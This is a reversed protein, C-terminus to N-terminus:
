NLIGSRVRVQNVLLPLEQPIMYDLKEDYIQASGYIIDELSKVYKGMKEEIKNRIIRRDRKPICATRDWKNVLVIKPTNLSASHIRHFFLLESEYPEGDIIFIHCHANLVDDFNVSNLAAEELTAPVEIIKWPSQRYIKINTKPSLVSCSAMDASLFANAVSSKGVNDKGLLAVATLHNDSQAQIVLQVKDTGFINQKDGVATLSEQFKCMYERDAVSLVLQMLDLSDLPKQYTMQHKQLLAAFSQIIAQAAQESLGCETLMAAEDLRYLPARSQDRECILEYYRSMNLALLELEPTNTLEFQLLHPRVGFHYLDYAAALRGILNILCTGILDQFQLSYNAIATPTDLPPQFSYFQLKLNSFSGPTGPLINSLTVAPHVRQVVQSSVQVGQISGHVLFLSIGQLQSVIFDIDRDTYFLPRNLYGDKKLVADGWPAKAYAANIANRFDVCGGEKNIKKSRTDDWFPATLLLPKRTQEYQNKLIQRTCATGDVFPNNERIDNADHVAIATEITYASRLKEVIDQEKLRRESALITELVRHEHAAKLETLRDEHSKEQIVKQREPSSGIEWARVGANMAATALITAPYMILLPNM